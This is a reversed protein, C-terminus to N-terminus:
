SRLWFEIVEGGAAAVSRGFGICGRGRLMLEERRLTLEPEAVFAVFTGNTSQDILFFKDQRLEIRAHQRSATRDAVMMQCSADRGLVIVANAREVVLTTSGYRLHLSDQKPLTIISPTALTLDEGVQWIIECVEVDDAKGKVSLAAIRRTTTQLLPALRAVTSQTTMIQMAKALGAMRAAQNVTDGFVDDNEEIVPGLHLGV